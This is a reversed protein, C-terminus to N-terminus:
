AKGQEEEVKVKYADLGESLRVVERRFDKIALVKKAAEKSYALPEGNFVIGEWGLLVAEALVEIMIEDSKADAEDDKRDLLKQNQEVLRALVRGYKRNGARAILLRAGNFDHWTGNNELNEDTAYQKFVDLM